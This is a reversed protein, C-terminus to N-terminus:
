RPGGFREVMWQIYAGRPHLRLVKGMHWDDSVQMGWVMVWASLAGALVILLRARM